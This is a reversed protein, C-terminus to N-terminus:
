SIMADIFDRLWHWQEVVGHLENWMFFFPVFLLIAVLIDTVIGKKYRKKIRYGIYLATIAICLVLCTLGGFASVAREIPTEDTDRSAIAILVQLIFCYLGASGFASLLVSMLKTKLNLM